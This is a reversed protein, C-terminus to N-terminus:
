VEMLNSLLINQLGIPVTYSTMLEDDKTLIVLIGLFNKIIKPGFGVMKLM